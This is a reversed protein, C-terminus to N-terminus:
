EFDWDEGCSITGDPNIVRVVVKVQLKLNPQQHCFGGVFETFTKTEKKVKKSVRDNTIGLEENLSIFFRVTGQFMATNLRCAQMDRIAAQAASLKNAM